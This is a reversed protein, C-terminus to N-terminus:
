GASAASAGPGGGAAINALEEDTLESARKFEIPEGDEGTLEMKGTPKYQGTIELFLKRDQYSKADPQKAVTVLAELVDAVHEGLLKKPGAAIREEIEPDKAKWQRITRTNALGLLDILQIEYKPWRKSAPVCHWAIYLAKRWDWRPQSKASGDPQPVDIREELLEYYMEEWAVPEPSAAEWEPEPKAKRAALLADLRAKSARSEAQGPANASAIFGSFDSNTEEPDSTKM